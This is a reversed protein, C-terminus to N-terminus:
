TKHQSHLPLNHSRIFCLLRLGNVSSFFLIYFSFAHSFYLFSIFFCIVGYHRGAMYQTSILKAAQRNIISIDIQFALFWGSILAAGKVPLICMSMAVTPERLSIPPLNHLQQLFTEAQAELEKLQNEKMQKKKTKTLLANLSNCKTLTFISDYPTLSYVGNVM